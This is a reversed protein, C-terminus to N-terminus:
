HIKQLFFKAQKSSDVFVVRFTYEHLIFYHFNKRIQKISIYNSYPLNGGHQSERLKLASKKYKNSPHKFVQRTEQLKSFVYM